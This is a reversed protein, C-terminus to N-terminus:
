FSRTWPAGSLHQFYASVVFGYPLIYTGMLKIQLPRDFWLPGYANILSNPNDFMGSEGETPGYLPSCNGKFSSYVISGKLQWKNSMRKDFTIVLAKYDRKAEPPNTGKYAPAPRDERLGYVTLSKDDDTGFEGDWGPDTVTYPIWILGNEDTANADYGNYLDIDEV